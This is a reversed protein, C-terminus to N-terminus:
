FVSGPRAQVALYKRRWIGKPKRLLVLARDVREPNEPTAKQLENRLDKFGKTPLGFGAVRSELSQLRQGLRLREARLRTDMLRQALDVLPLDIGWSM